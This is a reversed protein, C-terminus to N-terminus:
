GVLVRLINAPFPSPKSILLERHHSPLKKGRQESKFRELRERVAPIAKKVDCNIKKVGKVKNNDSPASQQNVLMFGSFIRFM